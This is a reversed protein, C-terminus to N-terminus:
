SINILTYIDDWFHKKNKFMFFWSCMESMQALDMRSVKDRSGVVSGSCHSAYAYGPEVLHQGLFNLKASLGPLLWFHTATLRGRAPCGCSQSTPVSLRSSVHLDKSSSTSGCSTIVPVNHMQVSFNQM